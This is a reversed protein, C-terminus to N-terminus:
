IDSTATRPATAVPAALMELFKTRTLREASPFVNPLRRCVCFFHPYASLLVFFSGSKAKATRTEDPEEDDDKSADHAAKHAAVANFLRVVGRTAVKMLRREYAAGSAEPIVRDKELLRRKTERAEQAEKQKTKEAARKRLTGPPLSPGGKREDNLISALATGFSRPASDAEDESYQQGMQQEDANNPLAAESESSSM